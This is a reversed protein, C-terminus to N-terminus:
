SNSVSRGRHRSTMRHRCCGAGSSTRLQPQGPKRLTSQRASMPDSQSTSSLPRAALTAHYAAEHEDPSAGAPTTAVPLSCPPGHPPGFLLAEGLQLGPAAKLELGQPRDPHDSLLRRGLLRLPRQARDVREGLLREGCGLRLVVPLVRLRILREHLQITARRAAPGPRQHEPLQWIARHFEVTLEFNTPRIV